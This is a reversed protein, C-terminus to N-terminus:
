FDMKNRERERERKRRAYGHNLQLYINYEHKMNNSSLGITRMCLSSNDWLQMSRTYSQHFIVFSFIVSM